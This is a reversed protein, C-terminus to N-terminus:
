NGTSLEFLPTNQTANPPRIRLIHTVTPAIETAKVERYIHKPKLGNGMFILPTLVANNRVIHIKEGAKENNIRWGPQLEIILDGRGLHHTGNYLHVSGENWLSNRLACDTVVNQVGAFEAVFAAARSQIDELALQAEDVAKRNLYIQQNYYGTVWNKQGYLQMLYMNLLAVCRKPYFDGRNVRLAEPYDEASKYYGSGTFVILTHSLGVKRDIADLLQEINKDLQYYTDQVEPTYEKDMLRRYNGAYYTIALLDPCQRSGFAAYELFQFALRNIEANVLASTKLNPYCDIAKENFTYRFAHNDIIYPFASYKDIPLSPTWVQKDLRASLSERGNNYRDVYWPLSKYYTTTAWKGNIDDIWFAGNAAHGASLLASEADPAIAYVDSRGLSAIKLEDGITSALLKRPSYNNRTYNGLFDPDHLVSLERNDFFDYKKDGAIGHFSPNTGTFLTAFASAQDINSFEFRINRYSVGENMLRKLGREGLTHYFYEMYDGRFQDVTICVVLKPVHHQADVNTIALIAILSTLIKKM